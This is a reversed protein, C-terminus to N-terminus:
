MHFLPSFPTQVRTSQLRAVTVDQMSGETCIAVFDGFVPGRRVNEMERTWRNKPVTVFVYRLVVNIDSLTADSFTITELRLLKLVYYNWFMFTLFRLLDCEGGGTKKHQRNYERIECSGKSFMCHIFKARGTNCRRTVKECKDKNM